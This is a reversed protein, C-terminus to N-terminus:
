LASPSPEVGLAGVFFARAGRARFGLLLDDERVLPRAIHDAERAGVLRHVPDPVGLEVDDDEAPRDDYCSRIPPPSAIASGTPSMMPSWRPNAAICCSRRSARPMSMRGYGSLWRATRTGSQSWYTWRRVSRSRWAVAFRSFTQFPRGIEFIRRASGSRTRSPVGTGRMSTM